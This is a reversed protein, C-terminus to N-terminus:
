VINVARRRSSIDADLFYREMTVPMKVNPISGQVRQMSHRSVFTYKALMWEISVGVTDNETYAKTERDSCPAIPVRSLARANVQKASSSSM